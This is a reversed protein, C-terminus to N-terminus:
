RSHISFLIQIYYSSGRYHVTKAFYDGNEDCYEARRNGIDNCQFSQPQISIFGLKTPSDIKEKKILYYMTHRMREYKLNTLSEKPTGYSLNNKFRVEFFHLVGDKKALIDLEGVCTYINRKVIEFGIYELLKVALEEYFFGKARKNM